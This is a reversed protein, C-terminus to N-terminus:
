QEAWNERSKKEPIVATSFTDDVEPKTDSVFIICDPDVRRLTFTEDNIKVELGRSWRGHEVMIWQGPEVDAQEPGVAYVRAWRPRIGESKGDDGPLLIGSSLQRGGFDMDRVLVNNHLPTLSKIEHTFKFSGGAQFLGEGLARTGKAM